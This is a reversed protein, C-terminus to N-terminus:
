TPATAALHEVSVIGSSGATEDISKRFAAANNGPEPNYVLGIHQINPASEKLLFGM